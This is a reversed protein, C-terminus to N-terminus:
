TEMLIYGSKIDTDVEVNFFSNKFNYLWDYNIWDEWTLFNNVAYKGFGDIDSNYEKSVKYLYEYLHNTLYSNAYKELIAINKEDLYQSNEDMTLIRAELKINSSIYPGSDALQVKNKTKDKLRLRLSITKGEEFPSAITITCVNLKNTIIQHCLAEIGTLEGVLKDGYFVALGMNEINAKSSISSENAKNNSDKDFNNETNDTSHTTDTNIGGLIAYCQSFTNNFDSFFQSLTVSETYATYDSSSPAVEYYRASLKELLPKSNELFYSASCRSIIINCDPRIQVNNILTYLSESIGTYAFEESFVIVKCHSLNLEKSIYSNLLNIGSNISSCEITNVVSNDSQSSSGSGSDSSGGPISLQFSIKLSNNEGVDLGIAVAYALHDINYLNYCGSLSFLCITLVLFLSIHKKLTSKM